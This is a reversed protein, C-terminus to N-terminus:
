DNYGFVQITGTINGATASLTFGDFLTTSSHYGGLSSQLASTGDQSFANLNFMTLNAIQPSYLEMTSASISSSTFIYSPIWSGASLNALSLTAGSTRTGIGAQFYATGVTDTTGVRLRFNTFGSGTAATIRTVIRYNDYVSSFVGNLSISTVGTFNVKGLATVSHSGSSTTVSQPSVNVLGVRLNSRAEDAQVSSIGSLTEVRTITDSTSSALKNLLASATAESDDEGYQWIGNADLAGTAM